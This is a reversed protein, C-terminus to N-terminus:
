NVRIENTIITGRIGVHSGSLDLRQFSMEAIHTGLCIRGFKQEAWSVLEKAISMAQSQSAGLAFRFAEPEYHRKRLWPVLGMWVIVYDGNPILVLGATTTVAKQLSDDM